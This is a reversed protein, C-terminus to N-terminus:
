YNMRLHGGSSYLTWSVVPDMTNAIPLHGCCPTVPSHHKHTTAWKLLFVITSQSHVGSWSPYYQQHIFSMTSQGHVTWDYNHAVHYGKCHTYIDTISLLGWYDKSSPINILTSYNVDFKTCLLIRSYVQLTHLCHNATVMLWQHKTVTNIMHPMM